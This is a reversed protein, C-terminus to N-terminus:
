FNYSDGVGLIYNIQYHMNGSQYYTIMIYNLLIDHHYHKICTIWVIFFYQSGFLVMRIVMQQCTHGVKAQIESLM